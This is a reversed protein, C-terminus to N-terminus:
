WYLQLFTLQVFALWYSLLFFLDSVNFWKFFYYSEPCKLTHLYFIAMEGRNGIRKRYIGYVKYLIHINYIDKYIPHCERQCMLGM